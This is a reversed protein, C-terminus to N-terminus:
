LSFWRYHSLRTPLINNPHPSRVKYVAVIECYLPNNKSDYIIAKGVSYGGVIQLIEYIENADTIQHVPIQTIKQITRFGRNKLYFYLIVLLFPIAIMSYVCLIFGWHYITLAFM